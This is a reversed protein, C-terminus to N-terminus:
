RAQRNDIYEIWNMKEQIFCEDGITALRIGAWGLNIRDIADRKDLLLEMGCPLRHIYLEGSILRSHLLESMPMGEMNQTIDRM